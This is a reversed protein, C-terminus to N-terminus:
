TPKEDRLQIHDELDVCTEITETCETDKKYRADNCNHQSWQDLGM